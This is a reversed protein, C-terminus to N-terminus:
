RFNSFDYNEIIKDNRLNEEARDIIKKELWSGYNPLVHIGWLYGFGNIIDRMIKELSDQMEPTREILRPILEIDITRGYYGEFTVSARDQLLTTLDLIAWLYKEPKEGYKLYTDIYDLAYIKIIAEKYRTDIRKRKQETTLDSNNNIEEIQEALDFNHKLARHVDAQAGLSSNSRDFSGITQDKIDTILDTIKSSGYLQLSVGLGGGVYKVTNSVGQMFIPNKLNLFVEMDSSVIGLLISYETANTAYPLAAAAGESFAIFVAIGILITGLEGCNQALRNSRYISNQKMLKHVDDFYTNIIKSIQEPTMKAYDSNRWNQNYRIENYANYKDELILGLSFDNTFIKRTWKNNQNNNSNSNNNNHPPNYPPKPEEPEQWLGWEKMRNEYIIANMRQLDAALNDLEEQSLKKCTGPPVTGELMSRQQVRNQAYLTNATILVLAM